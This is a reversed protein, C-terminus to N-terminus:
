RRIKIETTDPGKVIEQYPGYKHQEESFKDSYPAFPYDYPKKDIDPWDRSLDASPRPASNIYAALDWAEADTLQPTDSDVGWPMNSKIFFALSGIRYMGAGVTYSQSGWVPPNLWSGDKSKIGEGSVGHCVACKKFYLQEGKKIDAARDLFEIPKLGAGAPTENKKVDQGLWLM